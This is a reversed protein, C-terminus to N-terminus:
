IFRAQLRLFDWAFPVNYAAREPPAPAIGLQRRTKAEVPAPLPVCAPHGSFVVCGSWAAAGAV